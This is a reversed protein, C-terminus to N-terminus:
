CRIGKILVWCFGFGELIGKLIIVGEIIGNIDILSLFDGGSERVELHSGRGSILGTVV